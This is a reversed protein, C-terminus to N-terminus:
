KIGFTSTPCYGLMGISKLSRYIVLRYDAKQESNTPKLEAALSSKM